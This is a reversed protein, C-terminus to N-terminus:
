GCQRTPCTREVECRTRALAGILQRPRFVLVCFLARSFQVPESICRGPADGAARSSKALAHAWRPRPSWRRAGNGSPLLDPLALSFPFWHHRFLTSRLSLSLAWSLTATEERGDSPELVAAGATCFRVPMVVLLQREGCGSQFATAAQIERQRGGSSRRGGHLVASTSDARCQGAPRHGEEQHREQGLPARLGERLAAGRLRAVRHQGAVDVRRGFGRVLRGVREHGRSVAVGVLVDVSDLTLALVKVVAERRLVRKM